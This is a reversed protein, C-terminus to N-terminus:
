RVGLFFSSTNIYLVIEFETVAKLQKYHSLELSRLTFALTINFLSLVGASHTSHSLVPDLSSDQSSSTSGGPETLLMSKKFAQAVKLKKLIRKWLNPQTLLLGM